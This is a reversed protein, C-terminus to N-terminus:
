TLSQPLNLWQEGSRCSFDEKLLEQSRVFSSILSCIAPEIEEFSYMSAKSVFFRYPQIRVVEVGRIGLILKGFAGLEDEFGKCGDESKSETLEDRVHYVRMDPDDTPQILVLEKAGM